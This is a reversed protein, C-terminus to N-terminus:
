SGSGGAPEPAPQQPSGSLPGEGTPQATAGTQQEEVMEAIKAALKSDEPPPPPPEIPAETSGAPLSPPDGVGGTSQVNQGVEAYPGVIIWAYHQLDEPPDMEPCNEGEVIEYIIQNSKLVKAYRNTKAM